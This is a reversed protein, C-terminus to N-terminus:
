QNKAKDTMVQINLFSTIENFQNRISNGNLLTLWGTMISISPLSLCISRQDDSSNSTIRMCSAFRPSVSGQWRECTEDMASPNHIREGLISSM